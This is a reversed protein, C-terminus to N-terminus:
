GDGLAMFDGYFKSTTIPEPLDMLFNKALSAALHPNPTNSMDVFYGGNWWKKMQKKEFESASIRFIGELDVHLSLFSFLEDLVIPLEEGERVSEEM